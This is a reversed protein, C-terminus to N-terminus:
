RQGHEALFDRIAEEAIEGLGNELERTLEPLVSQLAAEVLSPLEASLRDHIRRTLEQTLQDLQQPPLSTAPAPTAPFPPLVPDLATSSAASPTENSDTDAIETLLPLDDDSLAETLVPPEAEVPSEAHRRQQMLADARAFVSRGSPPTESM